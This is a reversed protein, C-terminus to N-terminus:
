LVHIYNECLLMSNPILLVLYCMAEGQSIVRAVIGCYVTRYTIYSHALVFSM